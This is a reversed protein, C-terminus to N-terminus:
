YTAAPGGRLFRYGQTKIALRACVIDGKASLDFDAGTPAACAPALCFAREPRVDYHQYEAGLIVDVLAGNHVMVDLGGGAYWDCRLIGTSKQVHNTRMAEKAAM